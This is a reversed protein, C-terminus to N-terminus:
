QRVRQMGAAQDFKLAAQKELIIQLAVTWWGQAGVVVLVVDDPTDDVDDVEAKSEAVDVETDVVAADDLVVDDDVLKEAAVVIVDAAEVLVVEGDGGRM